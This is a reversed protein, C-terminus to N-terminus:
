CGAPQAILYAKWDLEDCSSIIRYGPQMRHLQYGHRTLEGWATRAAEFGHLEILILPRIERLIRQMGILALVEGGEIDMKIVQPRPNDQEFVFHDLSVGSLRIIESYIAEQRGASGDVKGMGDSPGVLFNVQKPADVVAAPVITVRDLLGNLELNKRLRDINTPLAEFAYVKGKEGTLRALLISIYGINAGVDYAVWGPEVSKDLAYQLHPEYTGLWYDKERRLDLRLRV